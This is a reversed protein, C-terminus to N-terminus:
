RSCPADALQFLDFISQREKLVDCVTPITNKEFRHGGLPSQIDRPVQSMVGVQSMRQASNRKNEFRLTILEEQIRKFDPRNQPEVQTCWTIVNWLMDSCVAPRTLPRGNRKERYVVDNSALEGFPTAGASCGEWMLVGFSYVDSKESYSSPSADSLVEPAAHRIPVLKLTSSIPSDIISFLSSTRTLGFDTLKVLTEAPQDASARFVLVNRCALDGHIIHNDALCIMADVVQRFIEVLVELTPRFSGTRLLESLDGHPAYEQVLMIHDATHSEVLGYTRVIHPHCSLQVYFSAERKAKAGDIRILVIAPGQRSIWSAEYITKDPSQFLPRQKVKAIDVDLRFRYQKQSSLQVFDEVLKKVIYNPRLSAVTMPERTIPSSAHKQIWLTINEREYTHGDGGIVPDRFFEYTIPCKLSDVFEVSHAEASM